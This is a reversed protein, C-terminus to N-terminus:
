KRLIKPLEIKGKGIQELPHDLAEMLGEGATKVSGIVGRSAFNVGADIAGRAARDIVRHPGQMGTVDTFPKDLASMLSEGAGEIARVAGNGLSDIGDAIGNAIDGIVRHPGKM